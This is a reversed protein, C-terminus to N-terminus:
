QRESPQLYAAGFFHDKGLSCVYRLLRTTTGEVDDGDYHVLAGREASVWLAVSNYRPVAVRAELSSEVVFLAATEQGVPLWGDPM